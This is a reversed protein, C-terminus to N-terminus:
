ATAAALAPAEDGVPPYIDTLLLLYGAARIHWRWAAVITNQLWSPQYGRFVIM